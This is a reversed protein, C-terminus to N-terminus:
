KFESLAENLMKVLDRAGDISLEFGLGVESLKTKIRQEYNPYFTIEINQRFNKHELDLHIQCFVDDRNNTVVKKM